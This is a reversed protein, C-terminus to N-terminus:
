KFNQVTSRSHIASTTTVLVTARTAAGDGISFLVVPQDPVEVLRVCLTVCYQNLRGDPWGPGQLAPLHLYSKSHM